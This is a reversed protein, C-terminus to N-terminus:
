RAAGTLAGFVAPVDIVGVLVGDALTAGALLGSDTDETPDALEGVGSMEDIALGAQWSGAEAVILHAAPGTRRIGLLLALDIVPLIQGRLNQVGLIVAPSGPVATLRGLRAVQVVGDIPIAYAEGAVAIRAYVAVPRSEATTKLRGNSTM